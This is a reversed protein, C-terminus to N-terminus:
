LRLLQEIFNCDIWVKVYNRRHSTVKKHNTTYKSLRIIIIPAKM